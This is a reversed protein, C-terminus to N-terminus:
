RPSQMVIEPNNVTSTRKKCEQSKELIDDFVCLIYCKKLLEIAKANCKGTFYSRPLTRM